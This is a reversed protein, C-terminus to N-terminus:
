IKSELVWFCNNFTKIMVPETVLEIDRHVNLLVCDASEKNFMFLLCCLSVIM